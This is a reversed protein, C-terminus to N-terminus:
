VTDNIKKSEVEGALTDLACIAQGDFTHAETSGMYRAHMDRSVNKVGQVTAGWGAALCTAAGSASSSAAVLANFAVNVQGAYYSIQATTYFPNTASAAKATALMAKASAWAQYSMSLQGLAFPAYVGGM